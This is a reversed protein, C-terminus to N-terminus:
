NTDGYDMVGFIIRHVRDKTSPSANNCVQVELYQHARYADAVESAEEISWAWHLVGGGRCDPDYGIVSFPADIINGAADRKSCPGCKPLPQLM